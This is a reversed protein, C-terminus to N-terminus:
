TLVFRNTFFVITALDSKGSISTSTLRALMGMLRKQADQHRSQEDKRIVPPPMGTTALMERLLKEFTVRDSPDIRNRHPRWTQIADRQQATRFFQALPKTGLLGGLCSGEGM